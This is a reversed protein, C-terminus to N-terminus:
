DAQRYGHSFGRDYLRSEEGQQALTDGVLIIATRDIGAATIDAALNGVSSRLIRQGPRSANQVVAAPTGAPYEQLLQQQLKDALGASLFVAMTARHSALRAISERPPVPTRGEARTIIVTQSVEPVTLEIELAAAVASLSTVGPIITFPIGEARLRTIQEKIAGYYSPDGSHLRVVRKGERYGTAMVGIIADLDLAASDVLEAAACYDLLAPDVLSGAHVVVEAAELLRRGKVTLLEPDGPGAGIFYVPNATDPEPKITKAM